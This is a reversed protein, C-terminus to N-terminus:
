SVESTLGLQRDRIVRQFDPNQVHLLKPAKRRTAAPSAMSHSLKRSRASNFPRSASHRLLARADRAATYTATYTPGNRGGDGYPFRAVADIPTHESLSPEPDPRIM